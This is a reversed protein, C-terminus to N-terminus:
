ALIESALLALIIGDKDTSWVTGDKCSRPRSAVLGVTARCAPSSPAFGALVEILDRGM